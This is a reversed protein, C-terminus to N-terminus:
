IPIPLKRPIVLDLPVRLRVAVPFAVQVGGRPIALVVASQGEYRALLDALVHGAQIRDKFMSTVARQVNKYNYVPIHVQAARLATHAKFEPNGRLTYLLHIYM